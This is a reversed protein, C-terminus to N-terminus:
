ERSSIARRTRALTRTRSGLLLSIAQSLARASVPKEIYAEGKWLTSRDTFLMDSYGTVYLVSLEPDLRRLRAALEHGPADPMNEDTLLLDFPGSTVFTTLAASPSYVVETTYGCEQLVREVFSCVAPEDDVILVKLPSERRRITWLWRKLARGLMVGEM